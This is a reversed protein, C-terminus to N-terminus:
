IKEISIYVMEGDRLSFCLSYKQEGELFILEYDSSSINNISEYKYETNEFQVEDVIVFEDAVNNAIKSINIERNFYKKSLEKIKSETIQYKGDETREFSKEEMIPLLKMMEEDSFISTSYDKISVMANLVNSELLKNYLKEKEKDSLIKKEYEEGAKISKSLIKRDTDGQEVDRINFGILIALIIIIVISIAKVFKNEM